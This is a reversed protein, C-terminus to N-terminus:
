RMVRLRPPPLLPLNPIKPMAKKITNQRRSAQRTGIRDFCGIFVLHDWCGPTLSTELGDVQYSVIGAFPANLVIKSGAGQTIYAVAEGSAAREGEQLTPYIQGNASSAIVKETRILFASTNIKDELVSYQLYSYRLLKSSFYDRVPRYSTVAM